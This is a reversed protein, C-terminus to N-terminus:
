DSLRKLCGNKYCMGGTPPLPIKAVQLVYISRLTQETAGKEGEKVFFIVFYSM